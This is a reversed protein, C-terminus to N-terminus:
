GVSINGSNQTEIPNTYTVAPSYLLIAERMLSSISKHSKRTMEELLQKEEDSVRLSIVNYKAHEKYKGM